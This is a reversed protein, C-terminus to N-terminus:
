STPDLLIKGINKRGLLEQHARSAQSLPLYKNFIPKIKKAIVYESVLM